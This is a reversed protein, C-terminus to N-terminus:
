YGSGQADRTLDHLAAIRALYVDHVAWPAERAASARAQEWRLQQRRLQWDPVGAARASSYARDMQRDADRVASNPRPAAKAVRVPGAGKAPRLAKPPAIKAAKTAKVAVQEVRPKLPKAKREIKAKQLKPVPEAKRPAARTVTHVLGNLKNPKKGEANDVRVPKERRDAKALRVQDKTPKVAAQAVRARPPKVKAKEVVKVTEIKVPKAREKPAAVKLMRPPRMKPPLVKPSAVAKAVAKPAPKRAVKAPAPAEIPEPEVAQVRVLGTVPRVPAIPEPPLREPLVAKRPGDGAPLVEILAGLPAPSDDLVIQLM